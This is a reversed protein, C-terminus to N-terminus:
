AWMHLDAHDRFEGQAAVTTWGSEDIVDLAADYRTFKRASEVLSQDFEGSDSLMGGSMQDQIIYEGNGVPVIKVIKNGYGTMTIKEQQTALSSPHGDRSQSHLKCVSSCVEHRGVASLSLETESERANVPQFEVDM